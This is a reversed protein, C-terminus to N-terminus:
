FINFSIVKGQVQLEVCLCISRLTKLLSIFNNKKHSREMVRGIKIAGIRSKFYSPKELDIIDDESSYISHFFLGVSFCLLILFINSLLVKESSKLSESALNLYSTSDLIFLPISIGFLIIILLKLKNAPQERKQSIYFVVNLGTLLVVLILLFISFDATNILPSM